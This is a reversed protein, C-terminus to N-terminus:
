YIKWCCCKGVSKGENHTSYMNIDNKGMWSKISRNYFESCKDVWTKASKNGSDDLIKQFANSTVGDKDKLPVIRAYRSCIDIVCLM